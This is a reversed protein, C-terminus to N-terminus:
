RSPLRAGGAALPDQRGFSRQGHEVNVVADAHRIRANSLPGPEYLWGSIVATDPVPILAWPLHALRAHLGDNLQPEVVYSLSGEWDEHSRFPEHPTYGGKDM